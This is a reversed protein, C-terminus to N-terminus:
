NQLEFVPMFKGDAFNNIIRRFQLYRQDINTRITPFPLLQEPSASQSPPYPLGTSFTAQIVASALLPLQPLTQLLPSTPKLSQLWPISTALSTLPGHLTRLSKDSSTNQLLWSCHNFGPININQKGRASCDAVFQRRTPLCDLVQPAVATPVKFGYLM